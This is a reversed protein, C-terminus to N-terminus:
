QKPPEPLPMWYSVQINGLRGQVLFIDTKHSYEGFYIEGKELVLVRDSFGTEKKWEDKESISPKRTKVSIWEM